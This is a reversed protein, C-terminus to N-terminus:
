VGRFLHGKTYEKMVSPLRRKAEAYAFEDGTVGRYLDLVQGARRKDYLRLDLLVRDVGAERLAPLEELLCHERSNFIHMRCARDQRLPFRYGKEDQLFLPQSQRCPRSCPINEEKTRSRGGCAAGLLCYESVMLQLAGQAFVETEVPLPDLQELQTLTLEPSLAVRSVGHRHLFRCAASNFVNLGLGSYLDGQWGMDRLLPIQGLNNVCCAAPRAALWPALTRRLAAEERPLLIQPLWPILRAQGAQEFLREPAAPPADQFGCVDYYIDDFGRRLATELLEESHVLVSVRLRKGRPVSKETQAEAARLAASFAAEDFPRQDAQRRAAFIEDMLERRTQNLVSAPLLADEDIEGKLGALQYGTGGLRGLQSFAVDRASGPKHAREVVYDTLRAAAYGDDDTFAVQLPQGVLARVQCHLPKDPLSAYSLEAQEMLPADYTKFVRDGVHGAAAAFSVTQGAEAREVTQEALYIADVTCGERKGSQWIEVGDGRNLPLALKLSIRGNKIESIRGLFLGRNNPRRYSMLAAGPNGHWYGSSRDRNFVQMLQRVEDPDTSLPRGEKLENLLRSYIRSVTAVYQPKKMRGEIKWSALGLEYLDALDDYGFLDKPSLLYKGEVKLSVEEGYEDVILYAMRCPQACRGRNGSRGGVMSSFLCQGSFCVCLAGHIFMELPIPSAAKVARIDDFSLERALIVRKVGEAALLGAAWGDYVTMQTSAHVALGPVAERLPDLLGIDQVIVADVGMQYLQAAYYLFAGLERDGVLTNATVYVKVGHFHALRVAEQLEDVTFNDAFARASFSKGGLYVANAGNAIAAQLAAFSGAPALLETM